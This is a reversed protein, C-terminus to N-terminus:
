PAPLKVLEGIRERSPARRGPPSRPTVDRTLGRLQAASRAIELMPGDARDLLRDMEVVGIHQVPTGDIALIVNGPRVGARAGPSGADVWFVEAGRVAAGVRVCLGAANRCFPARLGSTPEFVARGRAYDFTVVFRRLVETGVFGDADALAVTPIASTDSAVPVDPVTGGAIRMSDIVGEPLEVAGGIGVLQRNRVDRLRAPLALQASAARTLQLGAGAGFDVVLNLGAATSSRASATDAARVFLESRVVPLGNTVRLPITRAAHGTATASASTDFAILRGGAVDVLVSFSRLLDYGVIGDPVSTGYRPFGADPWSLITRPRIRVDGMRIDTGDHVSAGTVLEGIGFAVHRRRFALGLRRVIRPSLITASAGSDFLLLAPEGGVIARVFVHHRTFVAPLAAGAVTTPEVAPSAPSPNDGVEPRATACGVTILLLCLRRCRTDM